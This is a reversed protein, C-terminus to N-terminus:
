SGTRKTKRRALRGWEIDPHREELVWLLKKAGWLPHRKRLLLIALLLIAETISESTKNPSSLPRRSHDALGDRGLVEFRQVWEYTTKRSVGYRTALETISFHGHMYDDILFKKQDM